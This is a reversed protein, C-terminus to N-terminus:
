GHVGPNDNGSVVLIFSVSNTKYLKNMSINLSSVTVEIRTEMRTGFTMNTTETAM